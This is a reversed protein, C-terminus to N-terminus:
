PYKVAKEKGAPFLRKMKSPWIEFIFKYKKCIKSLLKNLFNSLQVCFDDMTSKFPIVNRLYKSIKFNISDRTMNYFIMIAM